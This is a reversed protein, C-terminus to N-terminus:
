RFYPVLSRLEKLAVQFEVVVPVFVLVPYKVDPPANTTPSKAVDFKFYALTPDNTFNVEGSM